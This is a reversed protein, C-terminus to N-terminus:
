LAARAIQAAMFPVHDRNQICSAAMAISNTYNRGGTPAPGSPRASEGGDGVAGERTKQKKSKKNEGTLHCDCRTDKADMVMIISEHQM